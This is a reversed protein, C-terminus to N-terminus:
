ESPHSDKEFVKQSGIQLRMKPYLKNNNLVALLHRTTKFWPWCKLQCDVYSTCADPHKAWVPNVHM